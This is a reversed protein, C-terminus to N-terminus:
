VGNGGFSRGRWRENRGDTVRVGMWVGFRFVRAAAMDGFCFVGTFEAFAGVFAGGFGHVTAGFSFSAFKDRSAHSSSFRQQEVTVASWLLRRM